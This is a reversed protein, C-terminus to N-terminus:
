GDHHSSSQQARVYVHMPYSWEIHFQRVIFHWLSAFLFSLHSSSIFNFYLITYNIKYESNLSSLNTGQRDTSPSSTSSLPPPAAAAAMVQITNFEACRVDDDSHIWNLVFLKCELKKRHGNRYMRTVAQRVAIKITRMVIFLIWAGALFFFPESLGCAVDVNQLTRFFFRFLINCTFQMQLERNISNKKKKMRIRRNSQTM